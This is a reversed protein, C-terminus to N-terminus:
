RGILPAGESEDKLAVGSLGRARAATLLWVLKAAASAADLGNPQINSICNRAADNTVGPQPQWTVYIGLSSPVSLGPREGILVAVAAVGLARAVADGLAVRAQTAVVCVFRFGAARLMPTAAAIVAPGQELVAAPSLGDALVLVLDVDAVPQLRSGESLTRGLDPRRLYSARDPAASAVVAVEGLAAVVLAAVLAAVDLPRHVADRAQAHAEAMALVERTPLSVGTRGLAIRAPTHARWGSWPDPVIESM